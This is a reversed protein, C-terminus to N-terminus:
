QKIVKVDAYSADSFKLIYVGETLQSLDLAFTNMGTQLTVNQQMAVQGNVHYLRVTVGASQAAELNVQLRERAPVPYISVSTRAIQQNVVRRVPSYAVSGDVGTMKLRYFSAGSLPRADVFRFKLQRADAAGQEGITQFSNNAATASREVEINDVALNNNVLEWDLVVTNNQLQATFSILELPLPTGPIGGLTYYNDFSQFGNKEVWKGAASLGDRSGNLWTAEDASEMYQLEDESLGNLEAEFFQFRLTADLGSNNAAAISYRRSITHSGDPNTASLHQRIITTVGPNNASSISLGINGPNVYSPATLTVQRKVTGGTLGTIRNVETENIISGTTLLDTEHQNLQLLGGDMQLEQAVSINQELQLGGEPRNLQLNYFATPSSGKIAAAVPSNGSFVVSGSGAQFLGNNTFHGNDIVLQAPGSVIMTANSGINLGQAKTQTAAATLFTFLTFLRRATAGTKTAATFFM